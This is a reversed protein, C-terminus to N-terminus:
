LGLKDDRLSCSQKALSIGIDILPSEEIIATKVNHVYTFTSELAGSILILEPLHPPPPHPVCEGRWSLDSSEISIVVYTSSRLDAM